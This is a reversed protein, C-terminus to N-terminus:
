KQDVLRFSFIKLVIIILNVKSVFPLIDMPRYRSCAKNRPTLIKFIDYKEETHWDCIRAGKPVNKFFDMKPLFPFFIRFNNFIVSLIEFNIFSVYNWFRYQLMTHLM